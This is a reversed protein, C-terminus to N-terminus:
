EKKKHKKQSKGVKGIEKFMASILKFPLLIIWILLQFIIPLIPALVILIIILALVMLVTKWWDRGDAEIPPTFASIHDVPSSVVPIVSYVGKKNFTMELIDFDFFQTGQRLDATNSYNTGNKGENISFCTLDTAFYDTQAYRFIFVTKDKKVSDNYYDKFRSVDESNIKLYNSLNSNSMDEPKIMQIPLVDKFDDNTAIKGFGYDLFKNWWNHTNDYSKINWLDNLNSIDFTRENKGKIRGDDVNDAFLDASYDHGGNILLHGKDYSNKYDKFYQELKSSSLTYDKIDVGGTYFLLPLLKEIDKSVTVNIGTPHLDGNWSWGYENYGQMVTKYYNLIYGRNRDYNEDIKVGSYKLLDNYIKLNDIVVTPRTKYEWWEAKIKQLTYGYKELVSNDIAFFVSNLQNQHNKGLSSSNSRWYTRKDVGDTKGALDLFITELDRVECLLNSEASSDAGYGKAYGTFKYTGGVGYDIANTQEKTMLEVGSIDYRRENSNVRQVLTKGDLGKRDVIKFKYFLNKFNSEESRSCFKLDFKEYFTAKLNGDNDKEYATAIQIKNSKSTTDINLAQPNYFYIYLGYNSQMNIKFSYCYEVFNIIFPNKILGTGDFPYDNINFPKGNVASSRLDELVNIDDFKISRSEAYTIQTIPSYLFCIALLVLYFIVIIKKKTKM